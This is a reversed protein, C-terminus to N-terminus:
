ELISDIVEDISSAGNPFQWTRDTLESLPPPDAVLTRVGEAFQHALLRESYPNKSQVVLLASHEGLSLLEGSGSVMTSLAGALDRKFRYVDASTSDGMLEAAVRDLNIRAVTVHVAAGEAETLVETLRSRLAEQRTASAGSGLIARAGDIKAAIAPSAAEIDSADTAYPQSQSDILLLASVLRDGALFPIIRLADILAFERSSFYPQLQQLNDKEIVATRGDDFGAM